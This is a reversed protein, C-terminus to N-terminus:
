IVRSTQILSGTHLLFYLMSIHKEPFLESNLSFVIFRTSVRYYVVTVSHDQSKTLRVVNTPQLRCEPHVRLSLSDFQQVDGVSPRKENNGRRAFHYYVWNFTPKFVFKVPIRPSDFIFGVLDDRRVTVCRQTM